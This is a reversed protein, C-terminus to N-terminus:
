HMILFQRMQIFVDGSIDNDNKLNDNTNNPPFFEVGGNMKMLYM